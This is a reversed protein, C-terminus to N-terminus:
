REYNMPRPKTCWGIIAMNVGMAFLIACFVVNYGGSYMIIGFLIQSYGSWRLTAPYIWARSTHPELNHAAFFIMGFLLVSGLSCTLWGVFM